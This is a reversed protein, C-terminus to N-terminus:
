QGAVLSVRVRGSGVKLLSPRHDILVVCLIFDAYYLFALGLARNPGWLWLLPWASAKEIVHVRFARKPSLGLESSVPLARVLVFRLKQKLSM